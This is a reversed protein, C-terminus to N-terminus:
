LSDINWLYMTKLHIEHRHIFRTTWCKGLRGGYIEEALNKVIAPTPPTGRTVLRQIHGLLFKEQSANLAQGHRNNGRQKLRNKRHVTEDINYKGGWAKKCNGQLKSGSAIRFGCARGCDSWRQEHYQQKFIAPENKTPHADLSPTCWTIILTIRFVPKNPVLM